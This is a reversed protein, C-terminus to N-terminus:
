RGYFMGGPRSQNILEEQVTKKIAQGLMKAMQANGEISTQAGGNSDVTVNITTDGIVVNSGTNGSLTVPISRNDPLPVFAENRSGEGFVALQPSSAVGGSAYKNLEVPGYNSMVGGKAFGFISAISGIIGMGSSGSTAAYTTLTTALQALFMFAVQEWKGQFALMAAGALFMTDSAKLFTKGANTSDKAADAQKDGAEVLATDGTTTGTIDGGGHAATNAQIAMTNQDIALKLPDNLSPFINSLLSKWGSTVAQSAADRFADSLANRAFDSLEQINLNGQQIGEFLKRISSDIGGIVGSILTGSVSKANKLAEAIQFGFEKATNGLYQGIGGTGQALEFAKLEEETAARKAEYIKQALDLQKGLSELYKASSLYQTGAGEKITATINAQEKYQAQLAAVQGQASGAAVGFQGGLRAVNAKAQLMAAKASEVDSAAQAAKLKNIYEEDQKKLATYKWGEIILQVQRDYEDTVDQISGDKDLTNKDNKIGLIAQEKKLNAEALANAYKQGEILWGQALQQELLATYQGGALGLRQEAITLSLDNVSQEKELLALEYKLTEVYSKEVRLRDKPYSTAGGVDGKGPLKAIAGPLAKIADGFGVVTKLDKNNAADKFFKKLKPDIKSLETKLQTDMGGFLTQGLREGQAGTERTAGLASEYLNSYKPNKLTAKAEIGRAEKNAEAVATAAANIQSASNQATNGLERIINVIGQLGVVDGVTLMNRIAETTKDINGIDREDIKLSDALASRLRPSNEETTTALTDTISKSIAKAGTSLSDQDYLKLIGETYKTFLARPSEKGYMEAQVKRFNEYIAEISNASENMSTGVLQQAKAYAKPDNVGAQMLKNINSLREGLMLHSDAAGQIAADLERMSKAEGLAWKIGEYAAAGVAVIAGIQGLKSAISMVATGAAGIAGGIAGGVKSIGPIKDLGIQKLKERTIEAELAYSAKLAAIHQGDMILETVRVSRNAKLLELTAKNEKSRASAAIQENNALDAYSRKMTELLALEQKVAALDKTSKAGLDTRGELRNRYNLLKKEYDAILKTTTDSYKVPGTGSLEFDTLISDNLQKRLATAERLIKSKSNGSITAYGVTSEFSKFVAENALKFKTSSSELAASAREVRTALGALLEPMALKALKGIVLSIAAALGVPSEALFNVLPNLVTNIINLSSKGLNEISAQIRTYPNAEVTNYLSSFKTEGEEIVANVFAQTKEYKTLEDASKGISLAYKSYAESAKTLIGLEDLLEPELKVTGKVLRNLSDGMDRGLATSAGKAVKTLATIQKTSLGASAALNTKEIADTLSVAGDTLNVMNNAAAKLNIGLVASMRAASEEMRQFDAAKQLANFAASVAYINAAFTAYLHVIGGLGQAQRAFDREGGRGGAGTTGRGMGIGSVGLAADAARSGTRTASASNNVEKTTKVIDKLAGNFKKAKETEAAVNTQLEVKVIKDAM